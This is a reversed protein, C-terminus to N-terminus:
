SVPEGSEYAIDDKDDSVRMPHRLFSAASSAPRRWPAIGSHPHRLVPIVDDNVTVYSPSLTM